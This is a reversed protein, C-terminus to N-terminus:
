YVALLNYKNLEQLIHCDDHTILYFILYNGLTYQSQCLFFM